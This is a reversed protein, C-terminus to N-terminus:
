RIMSSVSSSLLDTTLVMVLIVLICTATDQYQFLKMTSVLEFGIGGAGVM